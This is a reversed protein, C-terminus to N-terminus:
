RGFDLGGRAVLVAMSVQCALAPGLGEALGRARALVAWCWADRQEETRTFDDWEMRRWWNFFERPPLNVAVFIDGDSLAEDRAAEYAPGDEPALGLM